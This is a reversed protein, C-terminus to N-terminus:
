EDGEEECVIEITITRADSEYTRSVEVTDGRDHEYTGYNAHM